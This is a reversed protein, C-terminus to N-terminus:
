AAGCGLLVTIGRYSLKAARGINSGFAAGTYVIPAEAGVSGGLGITVASSLLSSWMNHAKIRSENRSVSLLVKTVGHGINDHVLYRVILLSVLMGLAPFIFHGTRILHQIFFIVKELLVAATGACLGVLLSLILLKAPEGFKIYPSKM